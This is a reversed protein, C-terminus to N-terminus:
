DCTMNARITALLGEAAPMDREDYHEHAWRMFAWRIEDARNLEPLCIGSEPGTGGTLVLADAFGMIYQECEAEAAAGWRSDNDGEVCPELLDAVSYDAPSQAHAWGALGVALAFTTVFWRAAHTM